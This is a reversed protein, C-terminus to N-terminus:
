VSKISVEATVTTDVASDKALMKCWCEKGPLASRTYVYDKLWGLFIELKM